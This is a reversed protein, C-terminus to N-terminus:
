WACTGHSCDGPKNQCGGSDMGMMSSDGGPSADKAPADNKADTGSSADDDTGSDMGSTDSSCAQAGLAIGGVVLVHFLKRPTSSAM